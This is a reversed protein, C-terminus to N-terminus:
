CCQWLFKARTKCPPCVFAYGCGSDGFNIGGGANEELQLVFLMPRGCECQPTEDGQLWDPQSSYQGIIPESSEDLAKQYAESSEEFPQFRIGDIQPLLTKEPRPPDLLVL